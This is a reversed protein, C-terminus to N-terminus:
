QLKEKYEKVFSYPYLIEDVNYCELFYDASNTAVGVAVLIDKNIAMPCVPFGCYDIHEGILNVRGPVRIIKDPNKGFKKVFIDTVEKLRDSIENADKLKLDACPLENVFSSRIANEYQGFM